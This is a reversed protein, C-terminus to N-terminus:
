RATLLREAIQLGSLYAGHVTGRYDASTHEGAFHLTASASSGLNAFDKPRSGYAAFSYAGRCFPDQSWASRLFNDPAPIDTGFLRRLVTMAGAVLDDDSQRDASIAADGACIMMLTKQGTLANLNVITPWEGRRRSAHFLFHPEEPWFVHDFTLALKAVQGFGLRKIAKEHSKPLAPSFAISGAKLVGLPVACIVHDATYSAKATVVTAKVDDHRIELVPEGLRVALGHALLQTIQDYGQLLIVDPGGFADDEDLAHASLDELRGGTDAETDAAAIARLLPDDLFDRELLTIARVLPRDDNADYTEDIRELLEAYTDEADVLATDTLVRGDPGFGILSDYDTRAFNAGAKRALATIPNGNIGHIWNAGRELVQGFSRFTDIRGGIRDRAELITVDWGADALTRATALGSIGAGIVIASKASASTAALAKPPKGLSQTLTALTLMQCLQRRSIERPM